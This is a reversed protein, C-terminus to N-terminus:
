PETLSKVLDHAIVQRIILPQNTPIVTYWTAALSQGNSFIDWLPHAYSVVEKLHTNHYTISPTFYAFKPVLLSQDQQQLM